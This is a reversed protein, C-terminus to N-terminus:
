ETIFMAFADETTRALFARYPRHCAEGPNVRGFQVQAVSKLPVYVIPTAVPMLQSGRGAQLTTLIGHMEGRITPRSVIVLRYQGSKSTVLYIHGSQHPASVAGIQNYEADQREAEKFVLHSAAEDWRIETLYAYIAKREGFSPRLTLYDGEIWSLAPRAYSGLMESALGSALVAPLVPRKRLAIGLAEELRVLTPVTFPRRGSLAKELTSLSIKARDALYRRTLRRRALEEIITSAIRTSEDVSVVQKGAEQAM